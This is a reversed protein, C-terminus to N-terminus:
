ALSLLQRLEEVNMNTVQSKSSSSVIENALLKKRSVLKDIKEELTGKCILKRVQVGRTQGIRYARDTAQDMVAPNWWQDYHIVQNAETLNLGQGGAKLSLIFISPGDKERFRTILKKRADSTLGGHLFLVDRKFLDALHDKLLFGMKAYQTFILTKDGEALIVDLYEELQSLKGSRNSLSKGGKLFLEPHNCVQKLKTITALVLGKRHIGKTTNVQELMDDLISQYLSAQEDTLTCLSQIEIKEPLEDIVKPDSKERRLIFPRLLGVLAKQAKKNSNKEIPIAYRKRFETLGGLLGPNLFDFISWLEQLHNELPTGTLAVKHCNPFLKSIKKAAKTQKADINKINQAEDLAIRKWQIKSLLNEDRQLISYTTIVLDSKNTNEQFEELSSSRAGHHTYVRISPGFKIVEDQWNAIVSMPVVLLTPEQKAHIREKESLLLAIFQITKGLGMDDALCAGIGLHSLFSLWNLGQKQYPRLTANLTKPTEIEELVKVDCSILKEFWGTGSINVNAIGEDELGLGFRIADIVSYSSKEAQKNIFNLSQSLKEQNIKVWKGDIKKIPLDDKVLEQAEKLSFKRDGVAIEWNFELLELSGLPKDINYSYNLDSQINLNLTLSNEASEWWDPLSIEFNMSKLPASLEKMFYYAETTNLVMSEPKEIALSERLKPFIKIARGLEKLFFFEIEDKSKWVEEAPIQLKDKTYYLFFELDWNEGDEPEIMKFGLKFLSEIDESNSFKNSWKKLKSDLNAFFLSEEKIKADRSFISKLWFASCETFDELEDDEPLELFLKDGIFSRILKDSCTSLYNSLIDKGNVINEQNLRCNLPMSESLIKFKSSEEFM